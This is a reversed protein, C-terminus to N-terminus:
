EEPAQQPVLVKGGPNKAEAAAERLRAKVEELPMRLSARVQKGATDIRIGSLDSQLEEPAEDMGLAALLRVMAALQQASSEDRAHLAAAIEVESGVDLTASLGVVDRAASAFMESARPDGGQARVRQGADPPLIGIIAAARRQLDAARELEAFEPLGSARREPDGMAEITARVVAADGVVIHSDDIALGRSKGNDTLIAFGHEDPAFQKDSFAAVTRVSAYRGRMVAVGMLDGDDTGSGDAPAAALLDFGLLVEDTQAALYELVALTKADDDDDAEERALELALEILGADRLQQGDLRLFLQLGGPMFDVLREPATPPSPAAVEAGSTAPGPEGTAAKSGGGCAWFTWVSWSVLLLTTHARMGWSLPRRSRRRHFLMSALSKRRASM